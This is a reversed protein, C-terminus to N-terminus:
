KNEIEGNLRFENHKIKELLTKMRKINKTKKNSNNKKKIESELQFNSTARM